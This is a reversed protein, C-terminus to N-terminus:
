NFYKTLAVREIARPSVNWVNKSPCKEFSILGQLKEEKREDKREDTIRLCKSRSWYSWFFIALHRCFNGLIIENSFHYIKVGKCFNGSFTPSKPLNITAFPKLFKGFSRYIAWDPWVSQSCFCTTKSHFTEIQEGDDNRWNTIWRLSSSMSSFRSWIGVQKSALYRGLNSLM